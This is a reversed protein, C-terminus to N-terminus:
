PMATPLGVDGRGQERGAAGVGAPMSTRPSLTSSASQIASRAAVGCGHRRRPAGELLCGTIRFTPMTGRRTTGSGSGPPGGGAGQRPKPFPLDRARPRGGRARDVVDGELDLAVIGSAEGSPRAAAAAAAPVSIPRGDLSTSSSTRAPTPSRGGRSSSGSAAARRSVQSRRRGTPLPLASGSEQSPMLATSISWRLVSRSVTTPVAGPAASWTTCSGAVEISPSCGQARPSRPRGRSRRRAAPRRDRRRRARRGSSRARRRLRCRSRRRHRARCAGPPPRACGSALQAGAAATGAVQRGAIEGRDLVRAEGAGLRRRRGAALVRLRQRRGLPADGRHQAVGLAGDRGVVVSREGELRRADVSPRTSTSGRKRGNWRRKSLGPVTLM